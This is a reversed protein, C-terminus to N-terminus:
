ATRRSAHPDKQGTGQETFFAIGRIDGSCAPCELPFEEGVRARLKAEAISHTSKGTALVVASHIARQIPPSSIAAKAAAPAGGAPLTRTSTSSHAPCDATHSRMGPQSEYSRERM